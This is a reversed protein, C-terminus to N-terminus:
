PTRRGRTSATRGRGKRYDEALGALEQRLENREAKTLNVKESKSFVALLFVPIDDGGYYTIARYGGSKGKGRGAIRLKRAGGTGEIVDGAKPNRSVIDVVARREAESLGAAKADSLYDPTEVVAQVSRLM